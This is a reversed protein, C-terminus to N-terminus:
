AALSATETAVAAQVVPKFEKIVPVPVKTVNNHGVSVIVPLNTLRDCELKYLEYRGYNTDFLANYDGVLQAAGRGNENMNYSRKLAYKEGKSEVSVTIEIRNVAEGAEMGTVEEIATIVGAHDGEVLTQPKSFGGFAKRIVNNNNNNGNSAAAGINQKILMNKTNTKVQMTNHPQLDHLRQDALVIISAIGLVNERITPVQVGAELGQAVACVDSYLALSPCPTPHQNAMTHKPPFNNQKAWANM